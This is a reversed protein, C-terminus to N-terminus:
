FHWSLERVAEARTLHLSHSVETQGHKNEYYATAKWLAGHRNIILAFLM